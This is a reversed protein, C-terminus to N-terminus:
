DVRQAIVLQRSAHDGLGPYFAEFVARGGPPDVWSRYHDGADWVHLRGTQDRCDVIGVTLASSSTLSTSLTATEGPRLMGSPPLDGFCVYPEEVICFSVSRALGGGANAIFITLQGTQIERSVKLHLEPLREAESQHRQQRVSRWSAGAAMAAFIASGVAAM